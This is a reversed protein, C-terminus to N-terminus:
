VIVKQQLIIKILGGYERVKVKVLFLLGIVDKKIKLGRLDVLGLLIILVRPFEM